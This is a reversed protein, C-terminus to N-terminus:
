CFNVNILNLTIQKLSLIEIFDFDQDVKLSVYKDTGNPQTKIRINEAM